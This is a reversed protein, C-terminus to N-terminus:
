IRDNKRLYSSGLMIVSGALLFWFGVGAGIKYSGLAGLSVSAKALFVPVLILMWLAEFCVINCIRHYVLLKKNRAALVLLAFSAISTIIFLIGILKALTMELESGIKFLNMHEVTTQGPNFYTSSIKSTIFPLFTGLFVLFSGVLSMINPLYKFDVGKFVKNLFAGAAGMGEKLKESFPKKAPNPMGSKVEYEEEIPAAAAEAIIDEADAVTDETLPNGCETCYLTGEPNEKGCKTCYM